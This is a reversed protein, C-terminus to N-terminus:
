PGTTSQIPSLVDSERLVPSLKHKLSALLDQSKVNGLGASFSFEPRLLAERSIVPDTKLVVPSTDSTTTSPNSQWFFLFIVALFLSLLVWRISRNQIQRM